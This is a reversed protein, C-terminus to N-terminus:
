NALKAVIAALGAVHKATITPSEDAWDSAAYLREVLAQYAADGELLLHEDVLDLGELVLRSFEAGLDSMTTTGQTFVLGTQNVKM